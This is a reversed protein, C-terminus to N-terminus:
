LIFLKVLYLLFLHFPYIGYFLYKMGKGKEQNYKMLFFVSFAGFMQFWGSGNSMLIMIGMLVNVGIIWTYKMKMTSSQYIGFILIVGFMGYDFRLFEALIALVYVLFLGFNKSKESYKQYGMSALVGFALTFFINQHTLSLVKNYFCLDFPIESILAFAFLRLGYKKSDRTHLLGEGIFFAFMPFALRGVIRFVIIDRFIVAGVHDLIMILIALRKLQAGSM